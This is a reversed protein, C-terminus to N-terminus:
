NVAWRSTLPKQKPEWCIRSPKSIPAVYTSWNYGFLIKMAQEHTLNYEHINVIDLKLEYEDGHEILTGLKQCDYTIVWTAFSNSKKLVIDKM